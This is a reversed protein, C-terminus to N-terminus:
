RLQVHNKDTSQNYSEIFKTLASATAQRINVIVGDPFTVSAGKLLDSAVAKAPCSESPSASSPSPKGRFATPFVFSPDSGSRELLVEYYLVSLDLGRRRMWMRLTGVRINYPRCFSEFSLYQDPFKRLHHKYDDIISSYLLNSNM